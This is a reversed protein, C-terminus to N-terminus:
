DVQVDANRRVAANSRFGRAAATREPCVAEANGDGRGPPVGHGPGGEAVEDAPERPRRVVAGALGVAVQEGPEGGAAVGPREVGQDAAM